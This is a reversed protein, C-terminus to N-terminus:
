AQRTVRWCDKRQEVSLSQRVKAGYQSVYARLSSGKFSDLRIDVHKGVELGHWPKPKRFKHPNLASGKIADIVNVRVGCGEKEVTLMVLNQVGWHGVIACVDNYNEAGAVFFTSGIKCAKLEDFVHKRIEGFSDM